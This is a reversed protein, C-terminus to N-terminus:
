EIELGFETVIDGLDKGARGDGYPVFDWGDKDRVLSAVHIITEDNYVGKGFEFIALEENTDDNVLVVAGGKLLGFSQRRSAAKHISLVFVIEEAKSSVRSLDVTINEGDDDGEEKVDGGTVVSKQPDTENGYFVFYEEGLAKPKGNIINCIFASADVDFNRVGPASWKLELRVRQLDSEKRLSVKQKKGLKVSM